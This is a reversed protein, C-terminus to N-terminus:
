IILLKRDKKQLYIDKKLYKKIMRVKTIEKDNESTVRERERQIIKNYIKQFGNIKKGTLDGTVEATKKYKM